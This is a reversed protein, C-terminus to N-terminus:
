RPRWSHLLLPLLPGAVDATALAYPSARRVTSQQKAVAAVLLARESDVSAVSGVSVTDVTSMAAEEATAAETAMPALTDDEDLQAGFSAMAAEEIDVWRSVTTDLTLAVEAVMTSTVEEEVWRPDMTGLTSAVEAVMTSTLEEEPVM